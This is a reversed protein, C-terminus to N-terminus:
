CGLHPGHDESTIWVINPLKPKDPKSEQAHACPQAVAALLTAAVVAAIPRRFLM